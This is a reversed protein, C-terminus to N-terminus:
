RYNTAGVRLTGRDAPPYLFYYYSANGPHREQAVVRSARCSSRNEGADLTLAIGFDEAEASLALPFPAGGGRL